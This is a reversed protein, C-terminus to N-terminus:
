DDRRIHDLDKHKQTLKFERSDSNGIIPNMDNHSKLNVQQVQADIKDLTMGSDHYTQKKIIGEQSRNANALSIKGLQIENDNDNPVKTPSNNVSSFTKKM